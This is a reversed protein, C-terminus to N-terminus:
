LAWVRVYDVQMHSDDNHRNWTSEWDGRAEWFEVAARESTNKRFNM